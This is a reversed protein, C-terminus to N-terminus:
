WIQPLCLWWVAIVAHVVGKLATMWWRLQNGHNSLIVGKNFVVLISVTPCIGVDSSIQFFERNLLGEMALVRYCHTISRTELNMVCTGGKKTCRVGFEKEGM